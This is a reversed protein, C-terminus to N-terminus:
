LSQLEGKITKSKSFYIPVLTSITVILLIGALILLPFFLKIGLFEFFPIKILDYLDIFRSIFSNILLSLGYAVGTSLAFAMLGNFLSEQLYIDQIEDGSAGLSSLIASMKHDESFSAFSVISLILITGVFAIILFLVLGYEAVDLFNLLSDSLLLSQSSFSLPAKFIDNKILLNKYKIDKLFLLYSYSSLYSYDDASLVRDYWSIDYGNYTSLNVLLNNKMYEEIALYSYYVKASPLYNLEKCVGAVKMNKEFYFTDNIYEGVENIFTVTVEHKVNLVESLPDKNIAKRILDRAYENIVVADLGDSISTSETTFLDHDIYDSKFSYIPTFLLDDIIAEDYSIRINQPLIASFNPCIEFLEHIKTDRILSSYKPRNQKVISMISDTNSTVEESIEGVGFNLQKYCADRISNEKNLIFGIVLYLMSLSISLAFTSIINRKIRRKFNKLAIKSIWSGSKRKKQKKQQEVNNFSKRQEDRIVKGDSLEIIRDSYKNVLPLNHSVLIVLRTESISKLIEMVKISNDSDLAGTPEDCLIINPSNIIARAISIRQKEGGSLKSAKLSYLEEKIGVMELANKIEKKNKKKGSISSAIEVNEFATLEELLNYNQFVIGIQNSYFSEKQKKKYRSYSKGDLIIDGSSPKDIMAILNLLTSKGSGSKGVISALGKNPFSLNTNKLASFCETKNIKYRRTLDKIILSM